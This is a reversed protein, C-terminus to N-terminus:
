ADTVEVAAAPTGGEATEDAADADATEATEADKAASTTTAAEGEGREPSKQVNLLYPPLENGDIRIAIKIEGPPGAVLSITYTGDKNDEVKAGSVGIGSAKADVRVGGHDLQNGYRDFLTVRVEIAQKEILPEDEPPLIRKLRCKSSSPAAPALHFSVPSGSIDQGHLKIHVFHEGARTPEIVLEYTGLGGKLKPPPLEEWTDVNKENVPFIHEASLAGEPPNSANGFSDRIQPRLIVNEGAVFGAGQKGAEAEGVSSGVASANGESVHVSFASGPLPTRQEVTAGSLEPAADGGGTAKRTAAWVHLDM